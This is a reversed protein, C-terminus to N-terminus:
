VFKILNAVKSLKKPSLGTLEVTKREFQRQSYISMEVITQIDKQIPDNYLKSLVKILSIDINKTQNLIYLIYNKLLALGEELELEMLEQKLNDVDRKPYITSLPVFQDKLGKVDINTLCKLGWPKLRVGFM